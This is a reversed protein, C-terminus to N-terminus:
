YAPLQMCATATVILHGCIHVQIQALAYHFNCSKEMGHLFRQNTLGFGIQICNHRTIGMQLPRLRNQEGM